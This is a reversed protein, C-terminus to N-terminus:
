QMYPNPRKSSIYVRDDDEDVRRTTASELLGGKTLLIIVQTTADVMDDHRTLPFNTLQEVYKELYSVFNGRKKRSEPIYFKGDKFFWSVAHAREIKGTSHPNYRIINVGTQAMDRVLASGSGKTEVVAGDPKRKNDGDGFETEWDIMLQVKLDPYDIHEAWADLLIVSYEDDIDKFVGICVYGTPDNEKKDTFATDYSLFVHELRPLPQDAPYLRIWSRKIIGAGDGGLIEAHIEQRGIETGEYKQIERFMTESLNAKNDYTSGKTVLIRSNPKSAQKLNDRLFEYPKPTTTMFKKAPIGNPLKLRLCMAVQLLIADPDPYGAVEDLWCLHWQSGRLAEADDASYFTIESQYDTGENFVIKRKTAYYVAKEREWPALSHWVGSDGFAVVNEIDSFRPTICGIRLPFNPFLDFVFHRVLEAGAKTKGSGRGAIYDWEDWEDIGCFYYPVQEDRAWIELWNYALAAKEEPTGNKNIEEVFALKEQPTFRRNASEIKFKEFDIM